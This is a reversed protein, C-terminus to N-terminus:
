ALRLYYRPMRQLLAHIEAVLSATPVVASAVDDSEKLLANTEHLVASCENAESQINEIAAVLDADDLISNGETLQPSSAAIRALLTRELSQM